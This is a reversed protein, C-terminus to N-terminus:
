EDLKTVVASGVVELVLNVSGSAERGVLKLTYNGAPLDATKEGAQTGEFLTMVQKEPGVLVVKFDGAKVTSQYQLTLTGSEAFEVTWISNSGTFGSYTLDLTDDENVGGVRNTFTYSDGEAAIMADDAYINLKDQGAASCGSLAILLVLLPACFFTKTKTKM